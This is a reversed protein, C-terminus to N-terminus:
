LPANHVAIGIRNLIKSQSKPSQGFYLYETWVYFCILGLLGYLYELLGNNPLVYSLFLSIIPVMYCFVKLALFFTLFENPVQHSCMSFLLFDLFDLV